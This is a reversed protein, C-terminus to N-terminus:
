YYQTINQKMSECFQFLIFLKWFVVIGVEFHKTSKRCLDIHNKRIAVFYNQCILDYAPKVTLKVLISNYERGKGSKLCSEFLHLFSPTQLYQHKDRYSCFKVLLISCVNRLPLWCFAEGTGTQINSLKFM